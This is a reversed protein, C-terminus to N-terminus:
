MAVAKRIEQEWDQGPVLKEKDLWADVGAKSLEDYLGKVVDANHHAHCLFVKLSRKKNTM